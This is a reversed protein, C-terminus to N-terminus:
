LASSVSSNLSSSSSLSSTSSSSSSSSSSCGSVFSCLNKADDSSKSDSHSRQITVWGHLQERATYEKKATEPPKGRSFSRLGFVELGPVFLLFLLVLLLIMYCIVLYSMGWWETQVVLVPHCRASSLNRPSSSNSPISDFKCPM